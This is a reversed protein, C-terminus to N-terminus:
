ALRAARQLLTKVVVLSTRVVRECKIEPQEGSGKNIYSWKVTM